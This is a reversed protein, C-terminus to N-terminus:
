ACPPLHGGPKAFTWARKVEDLIRPDDTYATGLANGDKSGQAIVCLAPEYLVTTPPSPKAHRYLTLGRIATPYNGDSRTQRELLEVLTVLTFRRSM